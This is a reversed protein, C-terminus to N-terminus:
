AATLVNIRLLVKNTKVKVKSIKEILYEISDKKKMGKLLKEIRPIYLCSVPSIMPIYRTNPNEIMATNVTVSLIPVERYLVNYKQWMYDVLDVNKKYSRLQLFVYIDNSFIRDYTDGFGKRKCAESLKRPITDILLNTVNTTIKKLYWWKKKLIVMGNRRVRIYSYEPFLDGMMQKIRKKTLSTVRIINM